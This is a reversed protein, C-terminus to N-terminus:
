VPSESISLARLLPSSGPNAKTLKVVHQKKRKNKGFANINKEVKKLIVHPAQVSKSIQVLKEFRSPKLIAYQYTFGLLKWGDYTHEQVM